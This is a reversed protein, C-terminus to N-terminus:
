FSLRRLVPVEKKNLARNGPGLFFSYIHASSIQQLIFAHIFSHMFPHLWQCLQPLCLCNRQTYRHYKGSNLRAVEESRQFELSCSISIEHSDLVRLHQYLCSLQEPGGDSSSPYHCPLRSRCLGSEM